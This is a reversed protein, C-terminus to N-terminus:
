KKKKKSVDCITKLFDVSFTDLERETKKIEKDKKNIEKQIPKNRKKRRKKAKRGTEQKKNKLINKLKKRENKTNELHVSIKQASARFGKGSFHGVVKGWPIADFFYLGAKIMNDKLDRENGKIDWAIGLSISANVLNAAISVGGVIATGLLVAGYVPTGYVAVVLVCGALALSSAPELIYKDIRERWEYRNILEKAREEDRKREAETRNDATMYVQKGGDISAEPYVAGRNEEQYTIGGRLLVDSPQWEEDADYEDIGGDDDEELQSDDDEEIGGDDEELQGVDPEFFSFSHIEITAGKSKFEEIVDSKKITKDFISDLGEVTNPEIINSFLAGCIWGHGIGFIDFSITLSKERGSYWSLIMGVKRLCEELADGYSKNLEIQAEEISNGYVFPQEVVTRISHYIDTETSKNPAYCFGISSPLYLYGNQADFFIGFHITLKVEDTEVVPSKEPVKADIFSTSM